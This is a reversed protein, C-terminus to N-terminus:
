FNLPCERHGFYILLDVHSILVKVEPVQLTIKCENRVFTFAVSDTMMNGLEVMKKDLIITLIERYLYGKRNWAFVNLPWPGEFTM